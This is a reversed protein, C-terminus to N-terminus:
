PGSSSKQVEESGWTLLKRWYFHGLSACPLCSAGDSCGTSLGRAVADRFGLVGRRKLEPSAVFSFSAFIDEHAM